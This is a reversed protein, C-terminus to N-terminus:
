AGGTAVRILTVLGPPMAKLKVAGDGFLHVHRNTAEDIIRHEERRPHVVAILKPKVTCTAGDTKDVPCAFVKSHTSGAKKTRASELDFKRPDKLWEFVGNRETTVDVGIAHDHLHGSSRAGMNGSQHNRLAMQSAGALMELDKPYKPPKGLKINVVDHLGRMARIAFSGCTPCMWDHINQAWAHGQAWMVPGAVDPVYVSGDPNTRIETRDAAEIVDVGETRAERILRKTESKPHVITKLVLPGECFKTKGNFDDEGCGIVTKHKGDLGAIAQLSGLAVKAPTEEQVNDASVRLLHSEINLHSESRTSLGALRRREKAHAELASKKDQFTYYAPEGRHDWGEIVRLVYSGDDARLLQVNNGHQRYSKLVRAFLSGGAPPPVDAALAADWLGQKTIEAGAILQGQNPPPSDLVGNAYAGFVLALRRSSRSREDIVKLISEQFDDLERDALAGQALYKSVDMGATKKIRAFVIVAKAIDNAISLDPDREGSEILAEATALTPLSRALANVVNRVQLDISEFALEALQVGAEGHFASVFIALTVRRIGDMNIRGSGDLLQARDREPISELFLSVFTANRTARLADEITEDELIDLQRLLDADIADADTEANEIGSSSIGPPTNTETAFAQRDVESLRVRVLIPVDKGRADAPDLGFEAARSALEDRYKAFNAPHEIAALLLAMTRGNGGEVILDPGVIPAGKDLSRFDEILADPNLNAAITQVQLRTAARGRNRPQLEPPFEPNKHFTQPDNSVTLDFGEVIRFEFNYVTVGNAGLAFTRPSGGTRSGIKRWVEDIASDIQSPNDVSKVAEATARVKIACPGDHTCSGSIRIKQGM